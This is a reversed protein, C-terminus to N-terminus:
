IVTVFISLCVLTIGVDCIEVKLPLFAGGPVPAKPISVDQGVEQSAM